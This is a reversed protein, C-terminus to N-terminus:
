GKNGEFHIEGMVFHCASPQPPQFSKLLLPWLFLPNHTNPTPASIQPAPPLLCCWTLMVKGTQTDAQHFVASPGKAM